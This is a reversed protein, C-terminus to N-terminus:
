KTILNENKTGKKQEKLYFYTPILALVLVALAMLYGFKSPTKGVVSYDGEYSEGYAQNFGNGIFPGICMPLAVVFLMRIGMFSGEEGKPIYQRVLANVITPVAVYGLIMVLGAISAYVTKGTSAGFSPIFYMLLLGVGLICFTPIIIKDKGFKDALFGIVLSLLSGGLLAVAMVIAFDTLFGSGSNSIGCSREIYVMLYPFYIQCAVAYIFYILFVLYLKKNSKVTSPKFGNLMLKFVPDKKLDEKEKPILFLAVIGVVIVVAGIIYFFLDWRYGNEKTTLGNLGVFIFLMAILPLISLVGEVKGRNNDSTHSTVYSNFTADNSTSGFFTMVCDLVIVLIAATSAAMKIPILDSSSNVNLLGFASTAIGWIIYGFGIFLRKHGVKDILAGMIITTLTAVVASLATTIAIMLSYDFGVGTPDTFNLYTIYTNLYMNEIAWAFQGALGILIFVLWLRIGVKQNVAKSEM